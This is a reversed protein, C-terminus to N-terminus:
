KALQRHVVICNKSAYKSFINDMISIDSAHSSTNGGRMERNLIYSYCENNEKYDDFVKKEQPSLSNYFNTTISM